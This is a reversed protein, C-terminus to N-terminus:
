LSPVVPSPFSTVINFQRSQIVTFILYILALRIVQATLPRLNNFVTNKSLDPLLLHFSAEFSIHEHNSVLLPFHFYLVM